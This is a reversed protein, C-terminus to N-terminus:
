YSERAVRNGGTGWMAILVAVPPPVWPWARRAPRAATVGWTGVKLQWQYLGPMMTTKSHPALVVNCRGRRSRM